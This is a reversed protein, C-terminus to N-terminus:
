RFEAVEIRDLSTPLLAARFYFPLFVACSQSTIFHYLFTATNLQGIDIHLVNGGLDVHAHELILNFLGYFGSGFGALLLVPSNIKQQHCM